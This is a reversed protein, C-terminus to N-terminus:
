LRYEKKLIDLEKFLNDADLKVEERYQEPIKKKCREYWLYFTEKTVDVNLDGIRRRAIEPYKKSMYVFVDIHVLLPQVNEKTEKLWGEIAEIQEIALNFYRVPESISMENGNSKSNYYKM